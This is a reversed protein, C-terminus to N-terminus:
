GESGLACVLLADETSMSQQIWLSSRLPLFLRKVDSLLQWIVNFEEGNQPLSVSLSVFILFFFLSANTVTYGDNTNATQKYTQIHMNLYWDPNLNNHHKKQKSM